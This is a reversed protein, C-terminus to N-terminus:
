RLLTVEGTELRARGAKDIWEIVFVYVGQEALQGGVLGDWADLGGEASFVQAGWRDFVSFSSIDAVATNLEPRFWDNLGDNNPSFANPVYLGPIEVKVLLEGEWTCGNEDELFLFYRTTESPSVVPNLCDGCSLGDTPSWEINTSVFSTLIPMSTSEGLKILLETPLEVLLENDALVEFNIPTACGTADELLYDYIGISLDGILDGISIEQGTNVIQYPPLGGSINTFTINGAGDQCAPNDVLFEVQPPEDTITTTASNTCGNADTATVSYTGATTIVTNGQSSGTNWNLANYLGDLGLVVEEGNCLSGQQTIQLSPLPNVVLNLALVSDCGTSATLTDLYIGAQDLTEGAFTYQEGACIDAELSTLLPPIFSVQYQEISDCGYETQFMLTFSTDQTFVQNYLDISEGPCLEFASFSFFTDAFTLQVDLLSDCGESTLLLEQFTTDQTYTQGNVSVVTGKCSTEEIEQFIPEADFLTYMAFDTCGNIDQVEVDYDGSSLMNVSVESENTSWEYSYPTTGGTVNATLMGNANCISDQVAIITVILSDPQALFLSDGYSCGVEDFVQYIYTDSILGVRLPNTEGDEWNLEYDVTGSIQLEISGDSDDYCSPEILQETINLTGAVVDLFIYASVQGHFPHHATVQIRRQGEEPNLAINTYTLNALVELLPGTKTFGTSALTLSDTDNGTLIVEPHTISTSLWEASGDLPNEIIVTISDFELNPSLTIQSDLLAITGSCISDYRSIETDDSVALDLEYGDCPPLTNEGDYAASITKYSMECHEILSADSIDLEYMTSGRDPARHILYTTGTTCTEPISFLGGYILTDPLTGIERIFYNHDDDVKLQILQHNVSPYYFSGERFTMQGLPQFTAPLDEIYNADLNPGDIYTLGRAGVMYVDRDYDAAIGMPITEPAYPIGTVFNPAWIPFQSHGILDDPANDFNGRSLFFSNPMGGAVTMDPPNAPYGADPIENTTTSISCTNLDIVRRDIDVNDSIHSRTTDIIFFDQAQAPNICLVLLTVFLTFRSRRM